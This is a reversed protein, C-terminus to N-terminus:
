DQGWQEIILHEELNVTLEDPYGEQYVVRKVGANLLLKACMFCPQHTCYVTSGETSVGHLAAQAIANAEAHVAMCLEHREGSPIGERMCRKCHKVGRPAGNYGTSLVHGDKVLVAGVQRRLCTSRCAVVHAMMMFYRNADPRM